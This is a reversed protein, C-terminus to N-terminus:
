LEQEKLRLVAIQYNLLPDVYLATPQPYNSREAYQLTNFHLTQLELVKAELLAIKQEASASPKSAEGGRSRKSPHESSM